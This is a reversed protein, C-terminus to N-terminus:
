YTIRIVSTGIANVNNTAKCRLRIAVSPRFVNLFIDYGLYRGGMMFNTTRKRFYIGPNIFLM